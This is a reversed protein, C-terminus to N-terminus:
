PLMRDALFSPLYSCKGTDTPAVGVTDGVKVGLRRGEVEDFGIVSEANEHSSSLVSKAAEEGSIKSVFTEENAELAQVYTKMRELWQNISAASM